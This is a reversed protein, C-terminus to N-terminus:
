SCCTESLLCRTRLDTCSLTPRSQKAKLQSTTAPVHDIHLHQDGRASTHYLSDQGPNGMTLNDLAEQYFDATETDGRRRVAAIAGELDPPGRDQLM